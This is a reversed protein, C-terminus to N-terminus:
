AVNLVSKLVTEPCNRFTGGPLAVSKTEETAPHCSGEAASQWCLVVTTAKMGRVFM